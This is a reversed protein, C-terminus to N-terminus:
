PSARDAPFALSPLLVPECLALLAARDVSWGVLLIGFERGWRYFTQITWYWRSKGCKKGMRPGTGFFISGWRLREVRGIRYDRQLFEHISGSRERASDGNPENPLFGRDSSAGPADVLAPLFTASIRHSCGSAVNRALIPLVNPGLRSRQRQNRLFGRIPRRPDRIEVNERQVHRLLAQGIDTSDAFRVWDRGRRTVEWRGEVDASRVMFVMRRTQSPNIITLVGASAILGFTRPM